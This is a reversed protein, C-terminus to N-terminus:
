RPEYAGTLDTTSPSKHLWYASRGICFCPWIACSSSRVVASTNFFPSVIALEDHYTDFM